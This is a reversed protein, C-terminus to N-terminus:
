YGTEIANVSSSIKKKKFEVSKFGSVEKLTGKKLLREGTPAHLTEALTV